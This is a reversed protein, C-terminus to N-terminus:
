IFRITSILLQSFLPSTIWIPLGQSCFANQPFLPFQIWSPWFPLYKVHWRATTSQFICLCVFEFVEPFLPLLTWSNWIQCLLIMQNVTWKAMNLPVQYASCTTCIHIFPLHSNQFISVMMDYFWFTNIRLLFFINVIPLVQVSLDQSLHFNSSNDTNMNILVLFIGTFWIFCILLHANEKPCVTFIASKAINRFVAYHGSPASTTGISFIRSM